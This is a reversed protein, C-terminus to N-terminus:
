TGRGITSQQLQTVLTKLEEAMIARVRVASQPDDRLVRRFLDRSIRLVTSPERAIATGARETEILLATEGILTDPPIMHSPPTGDNKEDLAVSGSLVIFGGDSKDGNRFLVDGTRLIRTEAGFAIRRLAEPDM